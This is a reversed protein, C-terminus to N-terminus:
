QDGVIPHIHRGPLFYGRVCVASRPSVGPFLLFGVALALWIKSLANFAYGYPENRRGCCSRTSKEMTRSNQEQNNM